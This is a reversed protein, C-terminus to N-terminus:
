APLNWASLVSKVFVEIGKDCLHLGDCTLLLGTRGPHRAWEEEFATDAPVFLARVDDAAERAALRYPHMIDGFKGYIEGELRYLPPALSCKKVGRQRAIHVIWRLNDAYGAPSIRPEDAWRNRGVRCDNAGLFVFLATPNKELVDREFRMLANVTKDGSVGANITEIGLEALRAALPQMYGSPNFTISDGLVALRDGRVLWPEPRETM